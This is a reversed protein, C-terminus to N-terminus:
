LEKKQEMGQFSPIDSNKSPNNKCSCRLTMFKVKSRRQVQARELCYLGSRRGRLGLEYRGIINGQAGDGLFHVDAVTVLADGTLDFEILHTGAAAVASLADIDSGELL